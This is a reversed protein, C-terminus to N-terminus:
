REPKYILLINGCNFAISNLLKLKLPSMLDKFLPKGKGISVPNIIIRYEDILNNNIFTTALDAGAFLVLDKGEQKKITNIENM